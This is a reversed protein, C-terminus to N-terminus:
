ATAKTRGRDYLEKLLEDRESWAKTITDSADQLKNRYVAGDVLVQADKSVQSLFSHVKTLLMLTQTNLTHTDIIFEKMKDIRDQESQNKAKLRSIKGAFVECSRLQKRAAIEIENAINYFEMPMEVYKLRHDKDESM